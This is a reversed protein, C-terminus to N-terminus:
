KTMGEKFDMPSCNFLENFSKYFYSRSNFGTEDIIESVNMTSNKLLYAARKLRYQNILLHPTLGTISKVKKYLSTKSMGVFSALQDADLDINNMEKQVYDAIKSLFENDKKGLGHSVHEEGTYALQKFKNRLVERSKILKEVRILLHDPHFPKPIYSDAGMQLGEIRHEIEAKATLLIVPIHSTEIREKIRQCLTLGDMEPMIVDSIVLDIKEKELADLAKIGSNAQHIGYTEPLITCIMSLVEPNDDVVLLQYEKNKRVTEDMDTNEHFKPIEYQSAEFEMKIREQLRSKILLQTGPASFSEYALKEVPVSFTFTSGKGPVSNLHITGKHIEILSKTLSLGIGTGRAIGEIEPFNESGHFFPEFIKDIIDSAIGVGTDTVEFKAFGDKVQLKVTAEGGRPTYKIANSILNILIKEIKGPDIYGKAVSSGPVFSLTVDHESSYDLFTEVIDCTFANLDVESVEAKAKGTEIKRFEILEQILKQLRLVNKFVPNLYKKVSDDNTKKLLTAV